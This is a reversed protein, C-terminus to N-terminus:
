SAPLAQIATIFDNQFGAVEFVVPKEISKFAAVTIKMSM